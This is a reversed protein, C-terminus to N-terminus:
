SVGPHQLYWTRAVGQVLPLRFAPNPHTRLFGIPNLPSIGSAQELRGFFDLLLLGGKESWRSGSASGAPPRSRALGTDLTNICGAGDAAVENPQNLGPLVSTIM